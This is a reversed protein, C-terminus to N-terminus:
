EGGVRSRRYFYDDEVAGSSGGRWNMGGGAQALGGAGGCDGAYRKEVGGRDSRSGGRANRAEDRGGGDAGRDGAAAFAGRIEGVEELDAFFAGFSYFDKMTYPDYKHDHCEACGMTAGLWVVSTNRVRDGVYKALYEKPQAGGEETTMNLRNYGSAVKQEITPNPLLDGALQEQTFRDFPMSSNFAAIVYDRFPSQSVNQDGHFGVTDAYRVLDLWKAAMREGFAPSGLLRDVLEGYAGESRDGVYEEVEEPTPPLGTLDFSLRRILTVRDAGKSPVLGQRKLEAGLFGDITNAGQMGSRSRMFGSGRTSRVKRLGDSTFTAVEEASLKKHSKEPPMLDDEDETVIRYVLESEELDGLCGGGGDKLAGERTDLRLKAKRESKDPGHCAFCKDSLIPRVERNFDVAGPAAELLAWAVFCLLPLVFKSM